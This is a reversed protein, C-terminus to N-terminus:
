LLGVVRCQALCDECTLDVDVHAACGGYLDRYHAMEMEHMHDAYAAAQMADYAARQQQEDADFQCGHDRCIAPDGCVGCMM